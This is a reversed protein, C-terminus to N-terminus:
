PDSTMACSDRQNNSLVIVGREQDRGRKLRQCHCRWGEGDCLIHSVQYISIAPQHISGRLRKDDSGLFTLSQKQTLM